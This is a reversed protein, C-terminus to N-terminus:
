KGAGSTALVSVTFLAASVILTDSVTFTSPCILGAKVM